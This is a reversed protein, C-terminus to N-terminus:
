VFTGEAPIVAPETPSSVCGLDQTLGWEKRCSDQSDTQRRSYKGVHDRCPRWCCHKRRSQQGSTGVSSTM